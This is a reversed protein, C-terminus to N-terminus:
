GRGYRTVLDNAFNPPLPLLKLGNTGITGSGIGICLVVATLMFERTQRRNAWHISVPVNLFSRHVVKADALYVCPVCGRVFTYVRYVLYVCWWGGVWGGVVVM